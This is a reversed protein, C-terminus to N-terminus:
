NGAIENCRKTNNEYPFLEAYGQKVIEKNVFIENNKSDNVYVYRLLRQYKDKNIIDAELRVQKNLILFSLFEKAESYGKTNIEPSDICILRVKEGSALIFTDGDIIEIVQNQEINPKQNYKIFIYFSFSLGLLIIITLTIIRKKIKEM